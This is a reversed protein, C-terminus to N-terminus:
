PDPRHQRQQFQATTHPPDPRQKHQALTLTTERRSCQTEPQHPAIRHSPRSSLSIIGLRSGFLKQSFNFKTLAEPRIRHYFMSIVSPISANRRHISRDQEPTRGRGPIPRDSPHELAVRLRQSNTPLSVGPGSRAAQRLCALAPPGRRISCSPLSEMPSSSIRFGIRSPPSAGLTPAQTTAKPGPPDYRRDSTAFPARAPPRRDAPTAVRAALPGRFVSLGASRSRVPGAPRLRVLPQRLREPEDHERRTQQITLPFPKLRSTEHDHPRRRRHAPRQQMFRQAVSRTASIQRESRTPRGSCRVPNQPAPLAARRPRRFPVTETERFRPRRRQGARGREDLVACLFRTIDGLLDM